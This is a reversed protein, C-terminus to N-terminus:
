WSTPGGGLGGIAEVGARSNVGLDLRKVLEGGLWGGVIVLGFAVFLLTLAPGIGLLGFPVVLMMPRGHSGLAKALKM